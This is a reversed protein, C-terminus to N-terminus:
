AGGVTIGSRLCYDRVASPIGEDYGIRSSWGLEEKIKACEFFCTRGMLWVAYRTVLPPKNSGVCAHMGEFIRAAIKAVSMSVRRTVEPEGLAHAIRNFYGSLTLVGDHCINYAEGVAREREAALICGEAANAAHVVNIRHRGDGIIKLKGSRISAILRGTTTRDREGYMWSPRIVTVPIRGAEHAQWVIREAEVKARSYRSWKKLNAGIPTTEDVVTGANGVDGYVSISSVNLFRRVDGDIAARLVNRTGDITDRQFEAWPGWDGVRAASHYVIDVGDCARRLADTDALDGRVIQAGIGELFRSDSGARCLVRVHTGRRRLQEVIHSGLLGTGGTVLATTGSHRTCDM